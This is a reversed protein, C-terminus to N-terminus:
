QADELELGTAIIAHPTFNGKVQGNVDKVASTADIQALRLKVDATKPVARM